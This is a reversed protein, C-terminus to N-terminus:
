ISFLDDLDAFAPNLKGIQFLNQKRLILDGFGLQDVIVEGNGGRDKRM